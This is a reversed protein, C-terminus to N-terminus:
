TFYNNKFEVAEEALQEALPAGGKVGSTGDLYLPVESM